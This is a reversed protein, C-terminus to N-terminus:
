FLGGKFVFSQVLLTGWVLLGVLESNVTLLGKKWSYRSRFLFVCVTPLTMLLPMGTSTTFGRVILVPGTGFQLALASWRAAQGLFWESDLFKIVRILASSKQKARHAASSSMNSSLESFQTQQQAPNFPLNTM